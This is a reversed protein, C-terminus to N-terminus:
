RPSDRKMLGCSSRIMATARSTVAPLVSASSATLASLSQINLFTSPVSMASVSVPGSTSAQRFPFHVSNAIRNAESARAAPMGVRITSPSRIIGPCHPPWM